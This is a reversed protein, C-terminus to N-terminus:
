QPALTVLTGKLAWKVAVWALTAGLSPLPVVAHDLAAGAYGPYDGAAPWPRPGPVTSRACTPPPSAVRTTVRARAARNRQAARRGPPSCCFRPLTSAFFCLLMRMLMDMAPIADSDRGPWRRRDPQPRAPNRHAPAASAQTSSPHQLPVTARRSKERRMRTPNPRACSSRPRRRAMQALGDHGRRNPM